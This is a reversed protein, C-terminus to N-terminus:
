MVMALEKLKKAFGADTVGIVSIDSKGTAKGLEEMLFPVETVTYRSNQSTTRFRDKTNESADDALIVLLVKGQKVAAETLNGGLSLAGARRALGLFSLYKNM